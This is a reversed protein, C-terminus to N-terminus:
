LEIEMGESGIEIGQDTINKYEMSSSDLIPNTNNIHVLITKPLNMEKIQHLTNGIGNLPVHGMASANKAINCTDLMEDDSWFTGDIFAYETQALHSKIQKDWVEIAPAYVISKQSQLDKIHYAIVWDNNNTNSDNIYRPKKNGSKIPTVELKNPELEFSQGVNVEHFDLRAYSSLIQRVPFSHSLAKLVSKTGFIRFKSNERLVLLGITHDLEADTLLISKIPSNRSFNPHLEKHAEIQQAIDPPANLLHWNHKDVSIALCAHYRIKNPETRRAKKCRKCACNWQPYGGGAITGLLKVFM